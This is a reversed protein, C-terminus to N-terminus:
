KLPTPVKVMQAAVVDTKGRLAYVAVPVFEEPSWRPV